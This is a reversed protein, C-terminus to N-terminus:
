PRVERRDNPQDTQEGDDLPKHGMEESHDDDMFVIRVIILVFAVVFLVLGIEAFVAMDANDIVEKEM